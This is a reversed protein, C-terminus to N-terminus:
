KHSQPRRELAFTNIAGIATQHWGKSTTLYALLLKPFTRISELNLPSNRLDKCIPVGLQVQCAVGAHANGGLARYGQSRPRGRGGHLYDLM